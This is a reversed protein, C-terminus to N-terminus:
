RRKHVKECERTHWVCEKTHGKKERTFGNGDERRVCVWRLHLTGALLACNLGDLALDAEIRVFRDQQITPMLNTCHTVCANADLAWEALL